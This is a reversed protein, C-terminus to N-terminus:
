GHHIGRDNKSYVVEVVALGSPVPLFAMRPKGLYEEALSDNDAFGIAQLHSIPLNPIQIEDRSSLRLGDKINKYLDQRFFAVFEETAQEDDELRAFLALERRGNNDALCANFVLSGEHYKKWLSDQQQKFNEVTRVMGGYNIGPLCSPVLLEDHGMLLVKSQRHLIFHEGVKKGKSFIKKEREMQRFQERARTAAVYAVRVEEPDGALNSDPSVLFVNDYELGKSKHITSVVIGGGELREIPPRQNAVLYSLQYIDISGNRVVGIDSLFELCHEFSVVDVSDEIRKYRKELTDLRMVEQQWGLFIRAVWAPWGTGASGQSLQNEVGREALWKAVQFAQLNSRTLIGTRKSIQATEAIAALSVPKGASALLGSIALGNPQNGYDGMAERAKTIFNLIEQNQYRWYKNLKYERLAGKSKLLNIVKSLFQASTLEKPTKKVEWDYIAQCPDGLLLVAGGNATVRDILSIVLQGRIGSLDQIEDVILYKIAAIQEGIEDDDNTAVEDALQKIRAEFGGSALQDHGYKRQLVQTAFSDFTRVNVYRLDDLSSVKVRNEVRNGVETVASRTFSLVVIEDAPNTFADSGLLHVLRDVLLHTKGTGPPALVLASQDPPLQVITEQTDPELKDRSAELQGAHVQNKLQPDLPTSGENQDTVPARSLRNSIIQAIEVAEPEDVPIDPKAVFPNTDSVSYPLSYNDIEPWLLGTDERLWADIQLQQERSLADRQYLSSSFHYPMARNLGRLEFYTLRKALTRENVEAILEGSENLLKQCIVNTLLRINSSKL